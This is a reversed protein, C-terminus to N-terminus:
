GNYKCIGTYSHLAQIANIICGGIVLKSKLSISWLGSQFIYIKWPLFAHIFIIKTTYFTRNLYILYIHVICYQGQINMWMWFEEEIRELFVM